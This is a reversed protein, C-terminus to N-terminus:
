SPGRGMIARERRMARRYCVIWGSMAGCVYALVLAALWWRTADAM